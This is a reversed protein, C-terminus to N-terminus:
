DKKCSDKVRKGLDSNRESVESRFHSLRPARPTPPNRQHSLPLSGVPQHLFYPNSGQTPFFGQLLFHCGVGTNKGPFGWPCFLRAPQLGHPRLLTLCSKAVLCCCCCLARLFLLSCCPHTLAKCIQRSDQRLQQRGSFDEIGGYDLGSM